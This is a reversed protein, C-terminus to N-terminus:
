KRCKRVFVQASEHKVVEVEDGKEIYGIDSVADYLEGGIEVKGSPRLITAATGRKGTLDSLMAADPVSVYGSASPQADALILRKFASTKMLQKGFIFSIVISLIMSVIVTMFSRAVGGTEVGSFDFGDNKILSFTLGTIILAIGAAGAVGFGPIVFLEVVLLIIGAIFVLVEWHAAMGELYLPAFYLVAAVISAFLPFGIGPSQMEYYIGAAIIMILLGSVVPNVLFGIIKDIFTENYGILSYESLGAAKIAEPVSEVISDCFGHKMAESATFTLVKGSDIIGEIYIDQDVMAEAIKPDRGNAEATARMM